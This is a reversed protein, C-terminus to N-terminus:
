NWTQKKNVLTIMGMGALYLAYGVELLPYWLSTDRDGLQITWRRYTDWRIALGLVFLVFIMGDFPFPVMFLLLAWHFFLAIGYLGPQWWSKMQYHHAASLHRHKQNFWSRWSHPPDSYVYSSADLNVNVKANTTAQQVWLDDDGYPIHKQNKYPDQQLFLNRPYLMNRGVGMYPRGVMTWSLYQIGTIVTEFRVFCNLWGKIQKYPSYGLVLNEGNCNMVMSKIWENGAPKCDADTCLILEYKAKDIGLTLAQKKGPQDTSHYISVQSLGHVMGELKKQEDSSSHDNVIIIEYLPYDQSLFADFHEVLIESGNKIAIVISVGPLESWQHTSSGKDGKRFIFFNYGLLVTLSVYWIIELINM